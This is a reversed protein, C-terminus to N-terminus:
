VAVSVAVSTEAQDYHEQDPPAPNASVLGGEYKFYVYNNPKDQWFRHSPGSLLDALSSAATYRRAVGAAVAFDSAYFGSRAAIDYGGNTGAAVKVNKSGTFPVALVFPNGPKRSGLIVARWYTQPIDPAVSKYLGGGMVSIHLFGVGRNPTKGDGGPSVWHGVETM